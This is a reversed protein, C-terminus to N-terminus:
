LDRRATRAVIGLGLLMSGLVPVHSGLGLVKSGLGLVESGLGGNTLLAALVLFALLFGFTFPAKPCASFRDFDIHKQSREAM